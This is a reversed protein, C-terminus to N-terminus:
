QYFVLGNWGRGNNGITRPGGHYRLADRRPLRTGPLLFQGARDAVGHFEGRPEVEVGRREAARRVRHRLERQAHRAGVQRAHTAAIGRIRQQELYQGRGAFQVLDRAVPPVGQVFVGGVRDGPQDVLVPAAYQEKGTRRAGDMAAVAEAAM